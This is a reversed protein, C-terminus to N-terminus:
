KRYQIMFNNDKKFTVDNEKRLNLLYDYAVEDFITRGVWFPLRGNKNFQKKFGFLSDDQTLGGGLHFKSIGMRNSELAAEYLLLNSAAYQRYEWRSGSLHYHMCSDNYMFIAGSIIVDDLIAYLIFANNRMQKLSEFYNLDFFYYEDANNRKMTENYMDVFAEYDDIERREIKVESKQAKRIMNRNKSDMNEWIVDKDSTDIYITDRMYRIDFMQKVVQYNNTIPFFRVFQTVINHKLCYNFLEQKFLICFESSLEMDCLPGGYGYPTEWDYYYGNEIKDSFISDRAIDKQMVVYCCRESNYEFYILYMDGDGHQMLSYAYDYTYYIDWNNFSKVCEDWQKRKAKDYIKLIDNDNM